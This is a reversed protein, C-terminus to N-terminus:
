GYFEGPVHIGLANNIYYDVDSFLGPFWGLFVGFAVAVLALGLLLGFLGRSFRRPIRASHVRATWTAAVFPALLGIICIAVGVVDVTTYSSFKAAPIVRLVLPGTFFGMPGKAAFYVSALLQVPIMWAFSIGTLFVLERAPRPRQHWSLALHVMTVLAAGALSMTIGLGFAVLPRTFFTAAALLGGNVLSVAALLGVSGAVQPISVRTAGETATPLIHEPDRLYRAVLRAMTASDRKLVQKRKSLYAVWMAVAGWAAVLVWGLNQILPTFELWRVFGHIEMLGEKHGREPDTAYHYTADYHRLAARLEPLTEQWVEQFAGDLTDMWAYYNLLATAFLCTLNAFDVFKRSLNLYFAYYRQNRSTNGVLPASTEALQLMRVSQNLGLAVGTSANAVDPTLDYLHSAADPAAKFYRAYHLIRSKLWPAKERHGRLYLLNYHARGSLILWEGLPERATPGVALAIWDQAVAGADVDPQISARWLYYNNYEWRFSDLSGPGELNATSPHRKSEPQVYTSFIGAFLTTGTANTTRTLNALIDQYWEGMYDPTYQYNEFSCMTQFEVIQPLAGTNITPNVPFRQYDSPTYKISIILNPDSLGGFAELYRDARSHVCDVNMQWTRLIFKKGLPTLAAMMTTAAARFSAPSNVLEHACPVYLDDGVRWHIGTANPFAAFLEQVQYQLLQGVRPNAFSLAGTEALWAHVAEGLYNFQDAWFYVELGLSAAYNVYERVKAKKWEVLTANVSFGPIALGTYNLLEPYQYVFRGFLTVGTCMQRATQNIVALNYERTRACDFGPFNDDNELNISTHRYALAPTISANLALALSATPQTRFRDLLWEAGHLLGRADSGYVVLAADASSGWQVAEVLFGDRGPRRGALHLLGGTLLNAVAANTTENGLLIANAHLGASSALLSVPTNYTEHFYTALDDVALRVPAANLLSHNVQLYVPAATTM